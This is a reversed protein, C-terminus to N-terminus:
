NIRSFESGPITKVLQACVLNSIIKAQTKNSYVHYMCTCLNINITLIYM